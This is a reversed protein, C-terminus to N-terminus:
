QENLLEIHKSYLIQPLGSSISKKKLIVEIMMRVVNIILVLSCSHFTCPNHFLRFIYSIGPIIRRGTHVSLPFAILQKLGETRCCLNFEKTSVRLYKQDHTGGGWGRYRLTQRPGWNIAAPYLKYRNSSANFYHCEAFLISM